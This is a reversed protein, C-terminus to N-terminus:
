DEVQDLDHVVVRRPWIVKLRPTLSQYRCEPFVQNRMSCRPEVDTGPSDALGIMSMWSLMAVDVVFRSICCLDLSKPNGQPRSIAVVSIESRCAIAPAVDLDVDALPSGSPLTGMNEEAVVQARMRIRGPRVGLHLSGRGATVRVVADGIVLRLGVEDEVLEFPGLFPGVRM